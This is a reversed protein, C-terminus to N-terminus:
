ETPYRTVTYIGDAVEIVLKFNDGELSHLLGELIFRCIELKDRSGGMVPCGGTIPARPTKKDM